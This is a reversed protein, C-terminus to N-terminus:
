EAEDDIFRHYRAHNTHPNFLIFCKANAMLKKGQRENLPLFRSM